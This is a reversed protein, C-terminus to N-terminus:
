PFLSGQKTAPHPRISNDRTVEIIQLKVLRRKMMSASVRFIEALRYVTSWSSFDWGSELQLLLQDKPILLCISFHEAQWFMWEPEFRNRMREITQRAEDNVTAFRALEQEFRKRELVEERSMGFQNWSSRHFLRPKTDSESFMGVASARFELHECHRLVRHGTEHGLCNSYVDPRRDFFEAHCQNITISEPESDSGPSYSALMMAGEPEDIKEWNVPIEMRDIFRDMDLPFGATNEVAARYARNYALAIEDIRSDTNFRSPIPVDIYIEIM